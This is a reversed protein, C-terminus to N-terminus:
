TERGAQGLSVPRVKELKEIAEKGLGKVEQYVLGSPIKREEYQKLRNVASKERQVYGSYKIEIEVKSAVQSDGITENMLGLVEDFEKKYTLKSLTKWTNEKIATQGVAVGATLLFAILLANKM